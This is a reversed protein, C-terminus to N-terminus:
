TTEKVMLDLLAYQGRLAEVIQEKAKEKEGNKILKKAQLLHGNISEWGKQVQKSFVAGIIDIAAEFESHITEFGEDELDGRYLLGTYKHFLGNIKETYKFRLEFRHSKKQWLYSILGAATAGFIIAFLGSNLFEMVPGDM